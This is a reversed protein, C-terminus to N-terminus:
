RLRVRLTRRTEEFLVEGNLGYVFWTDGNKASTKKIRLNEADYTYEAVTALGATGATSKSVKVLRNFIDYAYSWLEGATTDFIL